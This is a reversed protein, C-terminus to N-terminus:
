ATMQKFILKITSTMSLHLIFADDNVKLINEPWLIIKTSSLLEFLM